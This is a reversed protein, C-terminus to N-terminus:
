LRSEMEGMIQGIAESPELEDNGAIMSEFRQFDESPVPCLLGDQKRWLAGILLPGPFSVVVVRPRGDAQISGYTFDVLDHHGVWVSVDSGWKTIVFFVGGPKIHLEGSEYPQGSPKNIGKSIRLSVGERLDFTQRISGTSLSENRIV